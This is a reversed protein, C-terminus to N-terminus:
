KMLGHFLCCCFCIAHFFIQYLTPSLLSVSHKSLRASDVIRRWEECGASQARSM